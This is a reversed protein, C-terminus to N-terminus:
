QLSKSGVTNYYVRVGYKAKEKYQLVQSADGVKRIEYEVITVCQRFRRTSNVRMTINIHGM